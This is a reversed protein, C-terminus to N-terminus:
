QELFSPVTTTCLEEAPEQAAIRTFETYPATTTTTTTTTTMIPATTTTTSPATTTTTSPATTTTKTEEAHKATTTATTRPTRDVYTTLVEAQAKLKVDNHPMTFTYRRVTSSRVGSSFSTWGTFASGSRAVCEVTVVDGPRYEGGGSVIRINKGAILTVTYTTKEANATLTVSGKPATFTYRQNASSRVSSVSSSWGSFMYGNQVTCSVTVSEGSLYKGGGYVASIGTGAILTVNTYISDAEATLILDADPMTLTFTQKASAQFLALMGSKWERFAYGERVTCSITVNTGATYSGQGSVTYIGTGKCLTLTHKAPATTKTVEPKAQKTTTPTPTEAKAAAKTQAAAAATTQPQVTAARQTEPAATQTCATTETQTEPAAADSGGCVEQAVTQQMQTSLETQSTTPVDVDEKKAAHVVVLACITVLLISIYVSLNKQIKNMKHEM